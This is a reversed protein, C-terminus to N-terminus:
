AAMGRPAGVGRWARPVDSVEIGEYRALALISRAALLDAVGRVHIYVLIHFWFRCVWGSRFLPLFSVFHKAVYIFQAQGTTTM